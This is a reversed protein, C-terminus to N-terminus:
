WGLVTEIIKSITSQQPQINNVQRQPPLTYITNRIKSNEDNGLTSWGVSSSQTQQMKAILPDQQHLLQSQAQQFTEFSSQDMSVDAVGGGFGGDTNMDFSQQQQWHNAIKLKSTDLFQDTNQYKRPGNPSSYSQSKFRNSKLPSKRDSGTIVDSFKMTHDSPTGPVPYSQDDLSERYSCIGIIYGDVMLEGNKTLAIQAYFESQFEIHMWRDKVVYDVITGNQGLGRGGGPSQKSQPSRYGFSQSSSSTRVNASLKRLVKEAKEIPFGFTTIRRKHVNDMDMSNFTQQGDSHLGVSAPINYRLPTRDLSKQASYQHIPTGLSMPSGDISKSSRPTSELTDYFSKVQRQESLSQQSSNISQLAFPSQIKSKDQGGIDQASKQKSTSNPIFFSKVFPSAPVQNQTDQDLRNSQRDLSPTTFM